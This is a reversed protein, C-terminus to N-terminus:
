ESTTNFAPVFAYYQRGDVTKNLVLRSGSSIRGFLLQKKAECEEGFKDCPFFHPTYVVYSAESSYKDYAELAVDPNDYYPIFLSDSYAAFVPDTTLIISATASTGSTNSFYRYVGVVAPEASSLSNYYGYNEKVAAAASFVVLFSFVLAFVLKPATGLKKVFSFAEKAWFAALLAAFPLFAILFRPQKNAIATFYAIYVVAAVAVALLGSASHGGAKARKGLAFLLGPIFFLLLLSQRALEVFYFSINGAFGSISISYAANGQHSAAAFFPAFPASLGYVQWYLLFNYALVAAVVALFPACFRLLSAFAAKKGKGNVIIAIAIAVMILLHPFRFLFAASGFLGSLIYRGKVLMYVAALSFAVSSIDTLVMASSSFFSPSLAVLAAAFMAASSGFLQRGLLYTMIVAAAAFSLALIRYALMGGVGLKWFAGLLLPLGLPRIPELLGSSGASFMYKGLGIYVAEDWVVLRYKQLMLLQASVFVVLVALFAIGWLEQRRM